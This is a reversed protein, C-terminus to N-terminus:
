YANKFTDQAYAKFRKKQEEKFHLVDNYTYTNLERTKTYFNEYFGCLSLDIAKLFRQTVELSRVRVVENVVGLLHYSAGRDKSLFYDAEYTFRATEETFGINDEISVFQHVIIILETTTKKNTNMSLQSYYQKLLYSLSPQAILKQKSNFKGDRVFGVVMSSDIRHDIVTVKSVSHIFSPCNKTDHQLFSQAM